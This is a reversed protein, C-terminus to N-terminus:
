NAWKGSWEPLKICGLVEIPALKGVVARLPM